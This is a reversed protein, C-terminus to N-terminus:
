HRWVRQFEKTSKSLLKKWRMKGDEKQQGDFHFSICNFSPLENDIEPDTIIEASQQLHIRTSIIQHFEILGVMESARQEQIETSVVTRRSSGNTGRSRHSNTSYISHFISHRELTILELTAFWKAITTGRSDGKHCEDPSLTQRRRRIITDDISSWHTSKWKQPKKMRIKEIAIRTKSSFKEIFNLNRNSYLIFVFHANFHRGFIANGDWLYLESNM